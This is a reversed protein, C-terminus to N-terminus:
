ALRAAGLSGVTAFWGQDGSRNLSKNASGNRRRSASTEAFREPSFKMSKETDHFPRTQNNEPNFYVSHKGGERLLCCGAAEVHRILEQRKM